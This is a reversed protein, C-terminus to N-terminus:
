HILDSVAPLDSLKPYEIVQYEKKDQETLEGSLVNTPIAYKVLFDAYKSDPGLVQHELNSICIMRKPIKLGVSPDEFWEPVLWYSGEHEITDCKSYQTGEGAPTAIM